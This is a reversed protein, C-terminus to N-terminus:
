LHSSLLFLLAILVAWEALHFSCNANGERVARSAAPGGGRALPRRSHSISELAERSFNVLAKAPEGESTKENHKRCEKWTSPRFLEQM